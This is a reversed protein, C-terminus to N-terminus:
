RLIRGGTVHTWNKGSFVNQITSGHVSYHEGIARFSQGRRRMELMNPIDDETIKASSRGSGIANRKRAFADENNDKATGAYLHDPNVCAPNDCKHCIFEESTPHNGTKFYWSLRHARYSVKNVRFVGYGDAEKGRVWNLCDTQNDYECCKFFRDIYMIPIDNQDIEGRFSKCHICKKDKSYHQAAGYKHKGCFACKYWLKKGGAGGVIFPDYGEMEITKERDLLPQSKVWEVGYNTRM